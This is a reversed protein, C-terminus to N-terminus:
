QRVPSTPACYGSSAMSSYRRRIPEKDAQADGLHPEGAALRQQAAAHDLQHLFQRAQAGRRALREVQREGGVAMQQLREGRRELRGPEVADRDAHVGHIRAVKSRM